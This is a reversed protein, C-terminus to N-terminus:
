MAIAPHYDFADHVKGACRINYCSALVVNPRVALSEPCKMVEKSRCARVCICFYGHHNFRLISHESQPAIPNEESFVASAMPRIAFPPILEERAPVERRAMMFLRVSSTFTEPLNMPIHYNCGAIGISRHSTECCYKCVAPECEAARRIPSLMSHLLM